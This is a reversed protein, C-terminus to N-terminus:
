SQECGKEERKWRHNAAIVNKWGKQVNQSLLPNLKSDFQNWTWTAYCKLATSVNEGTAKACVVSVNVPMM